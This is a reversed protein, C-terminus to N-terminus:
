SKLARKEIRLSCKCFHKDVDNTHNSLFNNHIKKIFNKGINNNKLENNKM